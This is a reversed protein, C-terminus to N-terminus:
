VAVLRARAEASPPAAVGAGPVAPPPGSRGARSLACGRLTRRFQIAQGLAAVSDPDIQGRGAETAVMRSLQAVADSLLGVEAAAAPAVAALGPGAATIASLRDQLLLAAGPSPGASRIGEVLHLAASLDAYATCVPDARAPLSLSGLAAVAIYRAGARM